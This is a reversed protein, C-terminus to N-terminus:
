VYDIKPGMVSFDLPMHGQAGLFTLKAHVDLEMLESGKLGSLVDERRLLQLYAHTHNHHDTTM